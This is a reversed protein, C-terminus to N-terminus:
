RKRRRLLAVGGLGLLAMSTPEPVPQTSVTDFRYEIKNLLALDAPTFSFLSLDIDLLISDKGTPLLDTAASESLVGDQLTLSGLNAGNQVDAVINILSSTTTTSWLLEGHVASIDRNSDNNTARFSLNIQGNNGGTALFGNFDLTVKAGSGDQAITVYVDQGDIGSLTGNGASLSFNSFTLGGVTTNAPQNAITTADARGAFAALLVILSVLTKRFM